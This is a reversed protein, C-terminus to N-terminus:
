FDAFDSHDDSATEHQKKGKKKNSYWRLVKLDSIVGVCFKGCAIITMVGAIIQCDSTGPSKLSDMNTIFVNEKLPLQKLNLWGKKAKGRRNSIYPKASKTGGETSISM